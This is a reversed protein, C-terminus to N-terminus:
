YGGAGGRRSRSPKSSKPTPRPRNAARAQSEAKQMQIAAEKAQTLQLEAQEIQQQLAAYDPDSVLGGEVEDDLAKMEKEAAEFAEKAELAKEDREMSESEMKKLAIGKTALDTGTKAIATPDADRQKHLDEQKKQLADRDKILQKYEPKAKMTELATKRAAEYAAKAKKHKAVTNRWEEKTELEARRKEKIRTQETKLETVAAQAETIRKRADLLAQNKAPVQAARSAAPACLVLGVALLGGAIYKAGTQM